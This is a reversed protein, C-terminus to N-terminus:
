PKIIQSFAFLQGSNNLHDPGTKRTKSLFTKFHSFFILDYKPLFTLFYLSIFPSDSNHRTEICSHSLHGSHRLSWFTEVFFFHCFHRLSILVPKSM